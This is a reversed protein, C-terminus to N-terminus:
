VCKGRVAVIVSFVLEAIALVSTNSFQHFWFNWWTQKILIRVFMALQWEPIFNLIIKINKEKSMSECTELEDEFVTMLQQFILCMPCTMMSMSLLMNRLFIWGAYNLIPGWIDEAKIVLIKQTALLRKTRNAKTLTILSQLYSTTNLSLSIDWHGFNSHM